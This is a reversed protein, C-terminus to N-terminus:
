AVQKRLFAPTELHRVDPSSFWQGAITRTPLETACSASKAAVPKKTKLLVPKATNPKKGFGKAFKYVKVLATLFIAFVIAPVAVFLLVGVVNSLM